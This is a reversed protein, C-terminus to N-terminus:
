RKPLRDMVLRRAEEWSIGAAGSQAVRARREVETLWDADTRERSRDAPPLSDLLEVVLTVRQEEPLKLADKLLQATSKSM